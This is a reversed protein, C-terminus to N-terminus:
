LRVSYLESLLAKSYHTPLKIDGDFGWAVARTLDRGKGILQSQIPFPVVVKLGIM